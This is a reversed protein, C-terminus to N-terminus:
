HEVHFMAPSSTVISNPKQRKLVSEARSVGEVRNTMERLFIGDRYDINKNVEIVKVCEHIDYPYDLTTPVIYRLQHNVYACELLQTTNRQAIYFDGPLIEENPLEVLSFTSLIEYRRM